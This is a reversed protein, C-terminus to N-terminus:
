AALARQRPPDNIPRLPHTDKTFVDSHTRINMGNAAKRGMGILCLQQGPVRLRTIWLGSKEHMTFIAAHVSERFFQLIRAHLHRGQTLAIIQPSQWSRYRPSYRPGWVSPRCCAGLPV